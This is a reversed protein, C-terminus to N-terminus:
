QAKGLASRAAKRLRSRPLNPGRSPDSDNHTNRPTAGSTPWIRPANTGLRTPATCTRRYDRRHDLHSRPTTARPPGTTTVPSTTAAVRTQLLCRMARDGPRAHHRPQRTRNRRKLKPDGILCSSGSFKLMYSLPPFSVLWSERLLPSQLPFLGHQLDSVFQLRFTNRWRPRRSM